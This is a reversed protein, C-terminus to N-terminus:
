SSIVTSSVFYFINHIKKFNNKITNITMREEKTKRLISESLGISVISGSANRTPKSSKFTYTTRCKEIAITLGRVVIDNNKKKTSNKFKMNKTKKGITM